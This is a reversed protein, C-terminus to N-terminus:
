PPRYIAYLLITIGFAMIGFASLQSIRKFIADEIKSKINYIIYFLVMWFTVAGIFVSLAIELSDIPSFHEKAVGFLSFLVTFMVFTTPNLFVVFFTSFFEALRGKRQLTPYDTKPSNIIAHLGYLFFFLGIAIELPQHEREIWYSFFGFWSYGYIGLILICM